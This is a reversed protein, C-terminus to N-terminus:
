HLPTISLENVAPQATIKLTQADHLNFQLLSSVSSSKCGEGKALLGSRGLLSRTESGVTTRVVTKFVEGFSPSSVTAVTLRKNPSPNIMAVFEEFSFCESCM